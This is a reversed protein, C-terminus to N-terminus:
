AVLLFAEATPAGVPLEVLSEDPVKALVAGYARNGLAVLARSTVDLEPDDGEFPEIERRADSIMAFVDEPRRFHLEIDLGHAAWLAWLDGEGGPSFSPAPSISVFRSLSSLAFALVRPRVPRGDEGDWGAPLATQQQARQQQHRWDAGFLQLGYTAPVISTAEHPDAVVAASTSSYPQSGFDHAGFDMSRHARKSQLIASIARFADPSFAAARSVARIEEWKWNAVAPFRAITAMIAPANVQSLASLLASHRLFYLDSTSTTMPNQGM